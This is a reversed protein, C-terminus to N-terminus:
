VRAPLEEAWVGVLSQAVIETLLKFTDDDHESRRQKGLEPNLSEDLWRTLLNM